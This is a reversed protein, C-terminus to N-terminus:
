FTNSIVARIEGDGNEKQIMKRTESAERQGYLMENGGSIIIIVPTVNQSSLLSFHARLHSPIRNLCFTAQMMVLFKNCDSIQLTHSINGPFLISLHVAWCSSTKIKIHDSSAKFRNSAFRTICWVQYFVPLWQNLKLFIASPNKLPHFIVNRDLSLCLM